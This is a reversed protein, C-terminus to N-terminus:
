QKYLSDLDISQDSALYKMFATMDLTDLLGTNNVDFHEFTRQFYQNIFGDLEKGQFGKVKGIVDKALAMCQAKDMKFVGSPEGKATKQELAYDNLVKVMFKNDSDENFQDPITRIYEVGNPTMGQDGAAFYETSHDIDEDMLQLNSADDDSTSSSDSDSSSSSDMARLYQGNTMVIATANDTYTLGLLAVVALSLTKM